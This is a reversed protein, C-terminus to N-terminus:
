ASIKKYAKLYVFKYVLLAIIGGVIATYFQNMSMAAVLKPIAKEPINLKFLQVLYKASLFLFLTKLVSGVLIGVYSGYKNLKKNFIGFSLALIANGVMIFPMFPVLTFQGTIAAIIPTLLSVLVGYKLDTILLATLIIANVLPGVFLQNYTASGLRAGIFIIVFAIAAMMSARTLKKVNNINEM